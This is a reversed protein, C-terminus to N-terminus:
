AVTVAYEEILSDDGIVLRAPRQKPALVPGGVSVVTSEVRGDLVFRYRSRAATSPTGGAYYTGYLL